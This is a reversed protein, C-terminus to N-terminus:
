HARIQIIDVSGDYGKGVLVEEDVGIEVPTGFLA